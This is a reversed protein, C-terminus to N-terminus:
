GVSLVSVAGSTPGGAIMWEMGTCHVADASAATTETISTWTGTPGVSTVTFPVGEDQGTLIVTTTGSSVVRAALAANADIIARVGPVIEADTASGDATFPATPYIEPVPVGPGPGYVIFLQYVGANVLDPTCTTVQAVGDADNRWAGAEEAGTAVVRCYVSDGKAVDVEPMIFVDGKTVIKLTTGDRAVVESDNTDARYLNNEAVMVGFVDAAVDGTTPARAVLGDSDVMGIGLSLDSQTASTVTSLVMNTGPNGVLTVTFSEGARASVLEVYDSALDATATVVNTLAPVNTSGHAVVAAAVAATLGTVIQDASNSSATFSVLVPDVPLMSSDTSVRFSYVGDTTGGVTIRLRHNVKAYVRSRVLADRRNSAICGHVGRDPTSQVEIQSM